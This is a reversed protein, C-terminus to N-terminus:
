TKVVLLRVTIYNKGVYAMRRRHVFFKSTKEKKNARWFCKLLTTLQLIKVHGTNGQSYQLNKNAYIRIILIRSILTKSHFFL